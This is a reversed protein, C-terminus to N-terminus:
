DIVVTLYVSMSIKIFVVNSNYDVTNFWLKALHLFITQYRYGKYLPKTKDILQFKSNPIKVMNLENLSPGNSIWPTQYKGRLEKKERKACCFKLLLSFYTKKKFVVGKFGSFTLQFCCRSYFVHFPGM